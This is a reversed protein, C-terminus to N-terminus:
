GGIRVMERPGATVRGSSALFDPHEAWKQWIAGQILGLLEQDSSGARLPTKLDVEINDHLCPRFYGEATLRARSCTACFSETMSAIFGITGEQGGIRFNKSTSSPAEKELPTLEYKSEVIRQIEQTSIFQEISWQNNQFPMFEIFRVAVKLRGALKVFELVEADNFNRIAVVNIKVPLGVDLAKHIGTMVQDFKDFGTVQQFHDRKLTDLSINVSTLGSEKLAGAYFCLLVANTTMPIKGVGPIQQIMQVLQLLDRRILPEGGTRRVKEIGQSALLSVLRKIEEFTLLERRDVHTTGFPPMCYSCQLNCRDTVSVRLDTIRRHLRDILQNPM